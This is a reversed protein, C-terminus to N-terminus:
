LLAEACTHIAKQVITADVLNSKGRCAVDLCQEALVDLRRMVGGTAKSMLLLGDEAFVERRCGAAAMRHRVYQKVQDTNLPPIHVRVPMRGSLSALVNRKLTERLDTLGILIISLWAKSDKQFNLLIHLQDLVQIPLLHAEDLMLVVRLKHQSAMEEIHQSISAFLSAFTTRPELGMGISLQRYFDRRNMTSNHVYHLRYRGPPLDEELARLLCTKGCGSDGTVVASARGELAAKLRELAQELAETHLLESAPIDKSFPTRTLDYTSLLKNM